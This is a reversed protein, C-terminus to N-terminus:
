TIFGFDSETELRESLVNVDFVDSGISTGLSDSIGDVGFVSPIILSAAGSEVKLSWFPTGEVVSVLVSPSSFPIDDSQGNIM